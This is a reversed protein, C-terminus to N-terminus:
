EARPDPQKKKRRKLYPKLAKCAATAASVVVMAAQMIEVPSLKAKASVRRRKRVPKKPPTSM